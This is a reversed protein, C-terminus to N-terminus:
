DEAQVWDEYAQVATPMTPFVRDEGIVSLVGTFGDERFPCTRALIASNIM